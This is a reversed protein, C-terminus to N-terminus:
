LLTLVSREQKMLVSKIIVLDILNQKFVNKIEALLNTKVKILIIMQVKQIILM